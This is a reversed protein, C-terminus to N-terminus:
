ASEGALKQVFEAPRMVLIGRWPNMILLDDDGSVIATAGAALALELYRNDKSDRCDQVTESPEVWIAAASLLALIENCRDDTLVRAFKPRALVEAIESYVARSLAIVGQSRALAM